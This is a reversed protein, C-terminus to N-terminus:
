VFRERILTKQGTRNQWIRNNCLNWQTFNQLYKCLIAGRKLVFSYKM